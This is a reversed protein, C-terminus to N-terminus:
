WLHMRNGPGIKIVIIEIVDTETGIIQTGIIVIEIVSFFIYMYWSSVKLNIVRLKIRVCVFAALSFSFKGKIEISERPLAEDELLGKGEQHMDLVGPVLLRLLKQIPVALIPLEEIAEEM